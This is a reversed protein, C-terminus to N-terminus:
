PKGEIAIDINRSAAQLKETILTDIPHTSTLTTYMVFDGTSTLRHCRDEAQRNSTIDWDLDVFIAHHFSQLNLGTAGASITIGIGQLERQKKVIDQRKSSPVGGHIVDWGKRGALAEIPERHASFVLTRIGQDEYLDLLELLKPIRTRAIMKRCRSFDSFGPLTQLKTLASADQAQEIKKVFDAPLSELMEASRKDLPAPINKYVKKPLEPAVEAKTKRFMVRKLRNHFEPLVTGFKNAEPRWNALRLFEPYNKFCVGELMLTELIGYTDGPNGRPMPTGTLLITKSCLASLIKARRTRAAKKNKVSQGEDFCLITAAGYKEQYSMYKNFNAKAKKNEKRANKAAPSKDKASYGCTWPPPELWDPLQNYGCVVLEGANPWKFRALGLGEMVIPKLDKRWKLCEDRWGYKLGPPCVVLGRDGFSLLSVITKGLGMDLAIICKKQKKIFDISELQYARPKNKKPM